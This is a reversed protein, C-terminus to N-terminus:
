TLRDSETYLYGQKGIKMHKVKKRLVNEENEEESRRLKDMRIRYHIDSRIKPPIASIRKKAYYRKYPPYPTNQREPIVTPCNITAQRTHKDEPLKTASEPLENKSQAPSNCAYESTYHTTSHQIKKQNNNKFSRSRQKEDDHKSETLEPITRLNTEKQENIKRTTPNTSFHQTPNKKPMSRKRVRHCFDDHDQLQKEAYSVDSPLSKKCFRLWRELKERTPARSGWM